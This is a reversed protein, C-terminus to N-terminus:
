LRLNEGLGDSGSKLWGVMLYKLCFFGKFIYKGDIQFIFFREMNILDVLEFFYKWWNSHWQFTLGDLSPGGRGLPPRIKLLAASDFLLRELREMSIGQDTILSWGIRILLQHQRTLKLHGWIFIMLWYTLELSDFHVEELAIYLLWSTRILMRLWM